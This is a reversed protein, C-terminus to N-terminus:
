SRHRVFRGQADREIDMCIMQPNSRRGRAGMADKLRDRRKQVEAILEVDGEFHFGESTLFQAMEDPAQGRKRYLDAPIERRPYDRTARLGGMALVARKLPEYAGKADRYSAESRAKREKQAATMTAPKTKRGLAKDLRKLLRRKRAENLQRDIPAKLTQQTGAPRSSRRTEPLPQGLKATQATGVAASSLLPLDEGAGFMEAQTRRVKRRAAAPSM